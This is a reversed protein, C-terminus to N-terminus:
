RSVPQVICEHVFARRRGSGIRRAHEHTWLTLHAAAPEVLYASRRVVLDDGDQEILGFALGFSTIRRSRGPTM